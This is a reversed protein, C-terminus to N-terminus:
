PRGAQSGSTRVAVSARTPLSRRSRGPDTARSARCASCEQYLIPRMPLPAVAAMAQCENGVLIAPLDDKGLVVVAEEFRPDFGTLWAVNASHERDAYVVIADLRARDMRDRLRDLRALYIDRGIEPARESTGFRPIGVARLRARGVPHGAATM